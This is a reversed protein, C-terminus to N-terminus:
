EDAAVTVQIELMGRYARVANRNIYQETPFKGRLMVYEGHKSTVTNRCSIILFSLTNCMVLSYTNEVRTSINKRENPSTNM